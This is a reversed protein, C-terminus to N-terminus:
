PKTVTTVTTGPVPADKVALAADKTKSGSSSGLWYGVALSANTGAMGLLIQLSGDKTWWAICIAAQFIALVLCSVIIAGYQGIREAWTPSQVATAVTTNGSM